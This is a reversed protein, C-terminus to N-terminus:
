LILIQSAFNAFCDIPTTATFDSCIIKIYQSVNWAIIERYKLEKRKAQGLLFLLDLSIIFKV